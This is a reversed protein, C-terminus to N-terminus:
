AGAHLNPAISTELRAELVDKKHWFNSGFASITPIWTSAYGLAPRVYRVPLVSGILWLGDHIRTRLEQGSMLAM